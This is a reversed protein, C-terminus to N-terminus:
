GLASIDASDAYGLDALDHNLETVDAGTVGEDLVRWDPVSGYLLMVPDTLDTTYLVQGQRILQGASPLSTLTGGGAGTV